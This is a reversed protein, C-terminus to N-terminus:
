VGGAKASAKAPPGAPGALAPAAKGAARGGAKGKGCGKLSPTCKGVGPAGLGLLNFAAVIADATPKNCEDGPTVKLHVAWIADLVMTTADLCTRRARFM